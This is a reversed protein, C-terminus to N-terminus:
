LAADDHHRKSLTSWYRHQDSQQQLYPHTGPQGATGRYDINACEEWGQDGWVSVTEPSLQALWDMRKYAACLESVLKEPDIAGPTVSALEPM